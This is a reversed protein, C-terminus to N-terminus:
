YFFVNLIIRIVLAGATGILGAWFLWSDFFSNVTELGDVTEGSPATLTENVVTQTTQITDKSKLFVNLVGSISEYVREPLTTALAHDLSDFLVVGYQGPVGREQTMRTNYDRLSDYGAYLSGGILLFVALVWVWWRSKRQQPLPKPRSKPLIPPM